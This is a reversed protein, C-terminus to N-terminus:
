HIRLSRISRTIRRFPIYSQFSSIKFNAWLHVAWATKSRTIRWSSIYPHELLLQKSSFPKWLGSIWVMDVTIIEPLLGATASLYWSGFGAVQTIETLPKGGTVPRSGLFEKQISTWRQLGSGRIGKVERPLDAEQSRLTVWVVMTFCLWWVGTAM